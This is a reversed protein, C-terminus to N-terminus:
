DESGVCGTEKFEVKYEDNLLDASPLWLAKMSSCELDDGLAWGIPPISDALISEISVQTETLPIAFVVRVLYTLKCSGIITGGDCNCREFHRFYLSCFM